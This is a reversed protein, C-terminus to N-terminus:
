PKVPKPPPLSLDTKLVDELLQQQHPHSTYWLVRKETEEFSAVLARIDRQIRDTKFVSQADIKSPNYVSQPGILGSSRCKNIKEEVQKAYLLIADWAYPSEQSLALFIDTYHQKWDRGVNLWPSHWPKGLELSEEMQSSAQALVVVLRHIDILM